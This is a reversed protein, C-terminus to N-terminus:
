PASFLAKLCLNYRYLSPPLHSKSKKQRWKIQKERCDLGRVIRDQSSQFTPFNEGSTERLWFLIFIDCTRVTQLLVLLTSAKNKIDVLLLVGVGLKFQYRLCQGHFMSHFFHSLFGLPSQLFFLFFLFYSPRYGHGGIILVVM